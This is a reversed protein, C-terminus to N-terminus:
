EIYIAPKFPRASNARLKPDYRAPDDESYVVIEAKSIEDSLLAQADRITTVENFETLKLRRNRSELPASLIDDVMRQVLKPDSKAKVTEPNAIMQKMIQGFNITGNLINALIAKYIQLKWGASTYIVIKTPTIKTVKVINQIDALLNSILFESEEAEIDIKKEELVPWGAATLSRRNGMVEWVEEATFPAFPALMRLQINLFESLMGAIDERKRATARKMYWQLDRDLSYLAYYIAERIRLKDMSTTTEAITRQLRSALWRDELTLLQQQQQQQQQQQYQTQVTAHAPTNRCKVAMEFIGALKLRVGRVTDFSFDADQLIEASMLMALRITDAGYEKIAARLPIINGLSKSMKKGEMLVSGNVVIQQPWKKKDFIAVHNFIFFTLHNPVLDRGSHRSNVPYFYNFENRIQEVISPDVKCGKAVQDPSGVGLLVYDFFTDNINNTEDSISKNNVYRAIIYYAMYIVSDSLSEIIWEKDWPLKTGLGSKRACARERLWDIVYDFEQRIDQPLIDMNNLCLHALQKWERDAYNVFWQDNLLKVVCEAGCRCKVPKNVLEYTTEAWGSSLLDQKIENKAVAVTMGAFRGTNQMM